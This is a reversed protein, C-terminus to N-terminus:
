GEPGRTHVSEPAGSPEELWQPQRLETQPSDIASIYPKIDLVPTQDFADTGEIEIDTGQISLVRCLNLAVLNPRMPSRTAFVGTLPNDANGRPHVQLVARKEPTDNRDFWYLVWIHSWQELGLLGEQYRAELRVVTRGPRKEVHGIPVLNFFEAPKANMSPKLGERSESALAFGVVALIALLCTTKM